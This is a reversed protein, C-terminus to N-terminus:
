SRLIIREIENLVSLIDPENSEITNNPLHKHHPFSMLNPYHKANDYRFILDDKKNRFHYRYKIKTHKESNKVESFELISEDIFTIKGDIFGKTDSYTKETLFIEEIIHAYSTISKRLSLFYDQIMVTVRTETQKGFVNLLNRGL